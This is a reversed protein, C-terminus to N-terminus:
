DEVSRLIKRLEDISVKKYDKPVVFTNEDAPIKLNRLEAAFNLVRQEGNISYFEQRVPFGRAEDVFILIETQAAGSPKARYKTTNEVTELKEFTVETQNNLWENTLFETWNETSGDNEAGSNEAYIKKDPLILYNRDTTVSSVQNKAGANFDYRRNAGSSAVFTKRETGGTSVVIETQFNEPEKTSFPIRSKTEVATFPKTNNAEGEVNQGSRCSSFFALVLALLVINRTFSSSFM